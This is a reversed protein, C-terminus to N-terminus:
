FHLSTMVITFMLELAKEFRSEQKANVHLLAFIETGDAEKCINCTNDFRFDM